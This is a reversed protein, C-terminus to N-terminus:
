HVFQKTFFIDVVYVPVILFFYDSPPLDAISWASGFKMFVWGAAAVLVCLAIGWMSAARRFQDPSMDLIM